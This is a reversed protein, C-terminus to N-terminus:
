PNDHRPEQTVTITLGYVREAYALLSLLVTPEMAVQKNEHHNVALWIQYGDFSAYVGDGLYADRQDVATM